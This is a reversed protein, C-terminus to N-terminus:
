RFLRLSNMIPIFDSIFNYMAAGSPGIVHLFVLAFGLLNLIAWMLLNQKIAGITAKGIKILEPIQSLDDKMIAIDAAEVAADSGIAGMAIGIDSMALIPADNVGDGVMAVKYKRNLYKKLYELKDAPLLNAHVENIELLAATKNAVRENDGTLMAIKKIGLGMLEQITNKSEPRLEDALIILGKLLKDYAVLTANFGNELEENIQSLQQETIKVGMNELFSLKGTIIIKGRYEATMGRGSYEEFNNVEPIKIDEKKAQYVITKAIPHSSFYSAIAALKLVEKSSVDFNFIREVKMKGKTLTGTKDFVIAKIKSLGELFDGGKVIAGHRASHTIASMLALPTAVAVDDACSVLLLGLVLTVDKSLFYVVLSGTLTLIIYWKAFKNILTYIPAKNKQSEGVLAVIKEFMTESGVKEALIVLNGSVVTSFSLVADGKKKPIPESEGTLSSQDLEAEGDQVTGDIPVREGLEVVVLDGKKVNEIKIEKIEGNEKIKIKDPKMKLLSNIASHSKIKVYETFAKASSIMLNIFITSLWEREILSVILAISALLDISIKKDKFSRLASLVVIATAAFSVFILLGQSDFYPIKIFSLVLTVLLVFCFLYNLNLLVKTKKDTGDM